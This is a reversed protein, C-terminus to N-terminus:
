PCASCCALPFSMRRAEDSAAAAVNVGVSFPKVTTIARAPCGGGTTTRLVPSMSITSGRPMNSPTNSSGAM